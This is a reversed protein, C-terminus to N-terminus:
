SQDAQLATEVDLSLHISLAPADLYKKRLDAALTVYETGKEGEGARQLERGAAALNNLMSSVERTTLLVVNKTM